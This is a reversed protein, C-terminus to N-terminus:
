VDGLRREGEEWVRYNEEGEKVVVVVVMMRKSEEEVVGRRERKALVAEISRGLKSCYEDVIRTGVRGRWRNVEGVLRSESEGGGESQQQHQHKHEGTAGGELTTDAFMALVHLFVGPVERINAPAYM